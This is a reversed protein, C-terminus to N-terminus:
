SDKIKTKFVKNKQPNKVRPNKETKSNKRNKPLDKKNKALVKKEIIDNKPNRKKGLIENKSDTHKKPETDNKDLILDNTNIAINDYREESINKPIKQEFFIIGEKSNSINQFPIQSIDDCSFDEQIMNEQFDMDLSNNLNTFDENEQNLLMFSIDNPNIRNAHIM